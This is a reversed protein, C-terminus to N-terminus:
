FICDRRLLLINDVNRNLEFLVISIDRRSITKKLCLEDYRLIISKYLCMTIM